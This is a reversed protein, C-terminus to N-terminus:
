VPRFGGVWDAITRHVADMVPEDSQAKYNLMTPEETQSRLMHNMEAIILTAVPGASLGAIADTDEALCQFDKGGGIALIPKDMRALHQRVDYNFTDRYFKTSVLQFSVWIRKRSTTEVRRRLSTAVAQPDRTHFLWRALRGKLGKLTELDRNLVQANKIMDEEFSRLSACVMIAGRAAASGTCIEPCLVAGESHGLVFVRDPCIGPQNAACDLAAQADGVLELLGATSFRGESKGCGRKDYRLSAIGQAALQEAIQILIDTRFGKINGDRDQPGSGHVMVVCPAPAATAPLTLTGSLTLGDALFTIPRLIM